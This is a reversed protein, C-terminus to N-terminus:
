GPDSKPSPTAPVSGELRKPDEIQAGQESIELEFIRAGLGASEFARAMAAGIGPDRNSSFAVLGPGAGSLAVAAAGAQKAAQMAEQAGPILPLRYPQHLADDMARGLLELDGTRLAEAVLVARSINHVADKLPVQEPLTARAARTPFDFDPIVVTVPLPSRGTAGVAIRHAIVKGQDVTSVVLGGLLAPAVNDPHGEIDV